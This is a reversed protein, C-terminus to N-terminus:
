ALVEEDVVAGLFIDGFGESVGGVSGDDLNAGAVSGDGVEEGGAAAAEEEDLEVGVEGGFEAEAEAVGRGDLDNFGVDEGDVEGGVDGWVFGGVDDAVKRVVDGGADEEVEEGGGACAM